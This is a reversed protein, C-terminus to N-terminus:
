CKENWVNIYDVIFWNMFEFLHWGSFCRWFNVHGYRRYRKNTKRDVCELCVELESGSKDDYHYWESHGVQHVYFRGQWRKDEEIDKNMKRVLKNLARQHRKRSNSTLWCYGM